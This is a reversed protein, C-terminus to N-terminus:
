SGRRRRALYLPLGAAVIGWGALSRWPHAVFTAAVVALSVAIFFITTWPHGPTLRGPAIAGGRSRFVFVMAATAALFAFDVTIVWSLIEEYSGSLTTAIALAGQVLIAVHPVGTRPHLKGVSEFFLGDRAMAFYVRPYSLMGQALFGLTSVAIAAAILTGGRPGLARLMVESAPADHHALGAVGLARISAVNVLLYLLVVAATGGIMARPLTRASDKVEAAVFSATAWGGYAFLVAIMAVFFSPVTPPALDGPAPPAAAPALFLGSAVLGLIAGVKLVMLASQLKGGAEVGLLNVLTLLVLAGAATWWEGWPAAVLVHAYRAFTVAVAAMGGTQTVLLNSWGYLFAAAPHIGERLYAYQGGVAPLRAALEAWIFGAALAVAGGLIWALLIAGASRADKAVVHPNMFIGSGVMGGMVLLTTDALGLRPRPSDAADM